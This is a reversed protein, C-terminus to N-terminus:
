SVTRPFVRFMPLGSGRTLGEIGSRYASHYFGPRRLLGNSATKIFRQRLGPAKPESAVIRRGFEVACPWVLSAAISPFRPHPKSASNSHPGTVVAPAFTMVSQSSFATLATCVFIGGGAPYRTIAMM